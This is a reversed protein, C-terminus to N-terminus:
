EYYRIDALKRNFSGTQEFDSPLGSNEDDDVVRMRKMVQCGKFALFVTQGSNELLKYPM